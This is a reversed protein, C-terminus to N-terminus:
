SEKHVRVVAPHYLELPMAAALLIAVAAICSMFVFFRWSRGGVRGDTGVTETL